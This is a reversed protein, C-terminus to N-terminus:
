VIKDRPTHEVTGPWHSLVHLPHSAIVVVLGFALVLVLVSLVDMAGLVVVM